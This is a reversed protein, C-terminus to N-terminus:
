LTDHNIHDVKRPDGIDLGVAARHLFQTAQQKGFYATRGAYGGQRLYWSYVTLRKFDCADVMAFAAATGNKRVLPISRACGALEEAMESRPVLGYKRLDDM